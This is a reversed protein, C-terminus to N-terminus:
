AKPEAGDFLLPVAKQIGNVFERPLMPRKGEPQLSHIEVIGTKCRVLISDGNAVFEGPSASSGWNAQRPISSKLVRVRKGQFYTYAAPWPYLGRVRNHLVTDSWDTWRLLGDEKKLLPALTAREHDQPKAHVNGTEIRDLAALLLNAGVPTVKAFLDEATDNEGVSIKEQLLVDGADMKAAMFQISIGTEKMGRLLAWQVPAAGRLEPLLSPHVNIPPHECLSLLEKGFFEGYAVVVLAEAGTEKIWQAVSADNVKEPQLIKFNLTSAFKKVPPPELALGRKAPRDPQTVVGVVSHKKSEVIAKLFPVAFEPSGFFVCKL